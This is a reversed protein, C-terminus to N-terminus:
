PHTVKVAQMMVTQRANLPIGHVNDHILYHGVGYYLPVIPADELMLNEAKSMLDLRKRPDSEVAAKDVLADYEPSRWDPNNNESSSRFLDTFTSIDGYDGYWDGASIAFDHSHLRAGFVTIEIGQLEVEIGLEQQWQRRVIEATKSMAPSDSSFMLTMRPFGQGGPFGAEALLKRAEEPNYPLGPPSHYGPFVGVPVYTNAVIEGSRTADDVIPQKDIAMSLARRIRRDTFPNPRGGPLKEQCNFEYWYTGFAPFLKLDKRGKARLEPVLTADVDTIWGAGGEYLRYAALGDGAYLQDVIRSNVHKRNWYYDNAVMRVRRKFSWDDLRYPGNSVLNPPRTFTQDYSAIYTHTDDWQEYKRMCGEHQPFLPVYACLAPFYPVPNALSVKLTKDSLAEVGVDFAPAPPPSSGDGRQHSKAWDAVAGKWAVYADRYPKAGRIYDLLYTYEGPQEMMRRWAFVFDSAKLSDGNSWRADDRIHFTYIKKDASLDVHDASGLIPELTVPDPTYLGEWLAYAVRIDQMWSMVGIDLTKNEAPCVYTFDAPPGQGSSSWVIAGALLVLLVAPILLLRFM